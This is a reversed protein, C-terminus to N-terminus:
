RIGGAANAQRGGAVKKCRGRRVGRPRVVQRVRAPQATGYSQPRRQAKCQRACAAGKCKGCVRPVCRARQAAQTCQVPVRVM